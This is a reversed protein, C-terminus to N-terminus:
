GRTLLWVVIVVIVAVALAQKWYARALVPVV